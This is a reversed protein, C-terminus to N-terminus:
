EGEGMVLLEAVNLWQIDELRLICSAMPHKKNYTVLKKANAETQNAKFAEILKQM